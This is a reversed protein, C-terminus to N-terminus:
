FIPTLWRLLWYGAILCGVIVITLIIVTACIAGIKDGDNWWPEKKSVSSVSYVKEDDM